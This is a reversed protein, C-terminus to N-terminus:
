VGTRERAAGSRSACDDLMFDTLPSGSIVVDGRGTGIVSLLWGGARM